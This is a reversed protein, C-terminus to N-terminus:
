FFALTKYGVEELLRIFPKARTLVIKHQEKYVVNIYKATLTLCFGTNNNLFPLSMDSNSLYVQFFFSGPIFSFKYSLRQRESKLLHIKVKENIQFKYFSDLRQPINVSPQKTFYDQLMKSKSSTKLKRNIANVCFDLNERWKTYPLGLLNLHITMRTKIERIAREALSRKFFSEAHLKINL